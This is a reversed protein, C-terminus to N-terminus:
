KKENLIKRWDALTRLATCFLTTSIIFACWVYYIDIVILQKSYYLIAATTSLTIIISNIILFLAIHSPISNQQARELHRVATKLTANESELIRNQEAQKQIEVNFKKELLKKQESYEETKKNFTEQSLDFMDIIAKIDISSQLLKSLQETDLDSIIDYRNASLNKRIASEKLYDYVKTM